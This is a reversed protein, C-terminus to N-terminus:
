IFKGTIRLLGHWIGYTMMRWHTLRPKALLSYGIYKFFLRYFDVVKFHFPIWSERYLIFANRFMYYHRLPHHMTMQKGFFKIHQDGLSHLMHASHVVYSLFGHYRARWVWETDVYDIFLDERMEGVVDLVSVPILSGSSILFDVQTALGVNNSACKEMRLGRIRFFPTQLIDKREDLYRPGVAAPSTQKSIAFVLKEVMDLAPVSDQDMLLVYEAKRSRAWNIGINQAAAIGLNESLQIFELQNRNSEKNSTDIRFAPGNNVIVVFHVQPTLSDLMQNLVENSHHYLVVIAVVTGNNGM